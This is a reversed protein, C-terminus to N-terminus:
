PQRVAVGMQQLIGLLGGNPVSEVALSTIKSGNVTLEVHEAPLHVKTGTAPIRPLNAIPPVMEGDHTGTIELMGWVRDGEAKITRYDFSFDSMAAGLARHVGIWEQGTLPKPTAGSFTFDDSLQALARNYEKAEVTKFINEVTQQASM